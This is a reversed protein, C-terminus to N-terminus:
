VRSPSFVMLISLKSGVAPISGRGELYCALASDLIRVRNGRPSSFALKIEPENWWFDVQRFSGTVKDVDTFSSVAFIIVTLLAATSNSGKPSSVKSSNDHSWSNSLVFAPSKQSRPFDTKPLFFRLQNDCCELVFQRCSEQKQFNGFPIRNMGLKPVCCMKLFSTPSPM